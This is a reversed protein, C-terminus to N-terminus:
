KSGQLLRRILEKFRTLPEVIYRLLGGGAEDIIEIVIQVSEGDGAPLTWRAKRWSDTHACFDFIAVSMVTDGVNNKGCSRAAHFPSIVYDIPDPAPNVALIHPPPVPTSCYFYQAELSQGGLPHKRVIDVHKVHVGTFIVKVTGKWLSPLQFELSGTDFTCFCSGPDSM